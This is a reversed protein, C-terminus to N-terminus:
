LPAADADRFSVRIGELLLRDISLSDSAVPQQEAASPVSDPGGDASPDSHELVWNVEGGASRVLDLTLGTVSFERIHIKSKLLPLLGVGVRALDMTALDGRPFGGPNAIRLGEIEFYPWLSTTVVMGGEISVERGLAKSATAEAVSKYRSLDIPIRLLSVVLVAILALGLTGALFLLLYRVFGSRGKKNM